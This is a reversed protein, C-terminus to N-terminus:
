KQPIKERRLSNLNGSELKGSYKCLILLAINRDDNALNIRRKTTHPCIVSLTM